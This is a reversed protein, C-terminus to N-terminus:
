ITFMAIWFCDLSTNPSYRTQAETLVGSDQYKTHSKRLVVILGDGIGEL